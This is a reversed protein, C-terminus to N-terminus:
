DEEKYIAVTNRGLDKAMRLAQNAKIILNDTTTAETPIETFAGISVTIKVDSEPQVRLGANEIKARIREGVNLAGNSTTEPLM